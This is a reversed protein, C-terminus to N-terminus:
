SLYRLLRKDFNIRITLSTMICLFVVINTAITAIVAAANAIAGDIFLPANALIDEVVVFEPQVFLPPPEGPPWCGVQVPLPNVCCVVVVLVFGAPDAGGPCFL